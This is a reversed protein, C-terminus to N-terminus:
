PGPRSLGAPAIYQEIHFRYQRMNPSVGVFVERIIPDQAGRDLADAFIAIARHNGEIITLVSNIDSTVLILRRDITSLSARIDRIKVAHSDNTNLNQMIAYPQYTNQSVPGWDMSPVIFTRNMDAREYTASHWTINAPLLDLMIFRLARLLWHRLESNQQNSFDEDDILSQPIYNRVPDFFDSFWEAKLWAQIVEEFPIQRIIQMFVIM